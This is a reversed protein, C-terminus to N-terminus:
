ITLYSNISYYGLFDDDNHILNLFVNKPNDETGFYSCNFYYIKAYFM